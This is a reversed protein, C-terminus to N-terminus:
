DVLKKFRLWIDNELSALGRGRKIVTPIETQECVSVEFTSLLKVLILKLEM